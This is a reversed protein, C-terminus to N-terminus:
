GLVTRLLMFAFARAPNAFDQIDVIKGNELRLAQAWGHRQGEEDAWLFAVVVRDHRSEVSDISHDHDGAALLETDDRAHRPTTRTPGGVLPGAEIARQRDKPTLAANAASRLIIADIPLRARSDHHTQSGRSVKPTPVHAANVYTPVRARLREHFSNPSPYRANITAANARM